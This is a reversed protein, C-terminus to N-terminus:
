LHPQLRLKFTYVLGDPSIDWSEAVGPVEVGNEDTSVLGEYMLKLAVNAQSDQAQGPDFTPVDASMNLRLTQDAALKEDTAANGTNGTNATNGTNGNNAKNGCAALVTSIVLVLAIMLLLSKSKKM